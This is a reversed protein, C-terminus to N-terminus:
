WDDYCKNDYNFFTSFPYIFLYPPQWKNRNNADFSIIVKLLKCFNLIPSQSNTFCHPSCLLECLHLTYLRMVPYKIWKAMSTQVFSLSVKIRTNSKKYFYWPQFWGLLLSVVSVMTDPGRDGQQDGSTKQFIWKPM